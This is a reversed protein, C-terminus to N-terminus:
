PSPDNSRAPKADAPKVDGRSVFSSRPNVQRRAKTQPPASKLPVPEIDYRSREFSSQLLRAVAKVSESTVSLGIAGNRNQLRLGSYPKYEKSSRDKKVAAAFRSSQHDLLGRKELVINADQDLFGEVREVIEPADKLFCKVSLTQARGGNVATIEIDPVLESIEVDLEKATTLSLNCVRLFWAEAGRPEGVERPDTNQAEMLARLLKEESYGAETDDNPKTEDADTMKYPMPKKPECQSRAPLM